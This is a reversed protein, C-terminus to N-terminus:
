KEQKEFKAYKVFIIHELCFICVCVCLIYISYPPLAIIILNVFESM